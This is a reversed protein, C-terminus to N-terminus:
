CGDFCKKMILATRSLLPSLLEDFKEKTVEVKVTRGQSSLTIVSKKRSSLM